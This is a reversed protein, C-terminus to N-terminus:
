ASGRSWWKRWWRKGGIAAAQATLFANIAGDIASTSGADTILQAVSTEV